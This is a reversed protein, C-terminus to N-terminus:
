IVLKQGNIEKSVKKRNSVEKFDGEDWGLNKGM